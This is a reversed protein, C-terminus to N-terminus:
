PADPPNEMGNEWSVRGDQVVLQGAKVVTHVHNIGPQYALHLYSPIDLVVIDAAKGPELSGVRDQLGLSCAANLTAAAIAEEVSLSMNLCALAIMLQMSSTHCTGPNFDTALAVAVGADIMRRAPAYQRSMM